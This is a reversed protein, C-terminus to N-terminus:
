KGEYWENSEFFEDVPLQSKWLENITDIDRMVMYAKEFTIHHKYAFKYIKTIIIQEVAPSIVINDDSNENEKAM